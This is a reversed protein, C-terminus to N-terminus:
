TETRVVMQNRFRLDVSRIGSQKRHAAPILKLFTEFRAAFDRRGLHLLINERGGVLLAKLNNPDEVDVESVTWGSRPRAETALCFSVYRELQIRSKSRPGSESAAPSWGTLVPFDFHAGLPVTLVVGEADVLKIRNKLHLFAVPQREEIRIAMGRPFWRKVTVRRVWPMEEIRRRIQPSSFRLLSEEGHLNLLSLIERDEVIQNGHLLIKGPDVGFSAAINSILPSDWVMTGATGVCLALWVLGWFLSSGIRRRGGRRSGGVRQRQLYPSVPGALHAHRVKGIKGGRTPM